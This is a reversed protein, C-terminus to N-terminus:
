SQPRHRATPASLAKVEHSRPTSSSSVALGTADHNRWIPSQDVRTTVGCTNCWPVQGSVALTLGAAVVLVVGVSIHQLLEGDPERYWTTRCASSGRLLGTPTTTISTNASPTTSTDDAPSSSATAGAGDKEAPGIHQEDDLVVIAADAQGADGGARGGGPRYLLGSVVTM